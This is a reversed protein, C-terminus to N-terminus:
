LSFLDNLAESMTPHTFVQDRLMQYPMDMDLALKVINIMEHSEECFLMCGLIKDTKNDIIAKLLGTTKGLVQAKPIAAAPMKVVRFDYGGNRAEDENLGVRSFSPSLLVSYPVAKRLQRDYDQNHLASWVIRSDDLSIYTFQLGGNVDGIAWINPINTQLKDNVEIAGRATTKIGANELHLGEINPKRGTALLIAEGPLKHERRDWAYSVVAFDKEADISHIQAGLKFIVGKAELSEQIAAAMDRDERPILMDENQLVTVESGLGNYISAFELGIYGGGVIVLHKPLTSCDMLSASTYVFPNGPIGKIPLIVPTAGTNIIIQEAELELPEESMVVQVEHTSLFSAEGHIVDVLKMDHLKYYNKNRLMTVLKEKEEISDKYFTTMDRFSRRSHSHPVQSSNVLSKSPICGVNICTGGYMKEDKEILAVKKGESAFKGALTKGGKGFGIIIVDYKKM